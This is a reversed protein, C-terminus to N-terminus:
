FRVQLRHLGEAYNYLVTFGYQETIKQVISLGLGLSESGIKDKQFREFLFVPDVKLPHGTNAVTLQRGEVMIEIRGSELNHKIANTILNSILIEALTESMFVSCPTAMEFNVMIQKAAILEEYNRIHKNLIQLIDVEEIEPFQRNEIKALLILSQNLKSLRNTADQVTEIIRVQEEQLYESQVLLEM